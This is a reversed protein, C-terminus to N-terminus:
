EVTITVSRAESIDIERTTSRGDYSAEFAVRGTLEIPDHILEFGSSAGDQEHTVFVQADDTVDAGSGTEVTVEVDHAAPLRITGLDVDSRPSLEEITYLDPRDDDPYDDVGQTYQLSYTEGATM